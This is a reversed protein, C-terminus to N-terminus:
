KMQNPRVKRESRLFALELLREILRPYSIGSKEWLKPYMSIPTFGPMSNIENIYVKGNKKDIFFDVRSLGEAGVARYATLAMRKVEDSVEAAVDAPILLKSTGSRYKAEYDYFEFSPIIEGLVSVEAKEMNGLVSVEIERADLAEEILLKEDYLFATKIAQRLEEENRAKSIGITSGMNAPKVFCPYGIKAEVNRIKEEMDEFYLMPEYNVQCLEEVAFLRKSIEKDLSVASALVGCGVYPLGSLELLGQVKGDEGFPGHMVPFFVDFLVITEEGSYLGPSRQNSYFVVEADSVESLWGGDQLKDIDGEFYFAKGEKSIGILYVRHASKDINEYVSRASMLSIEHEASKGGFILGINM